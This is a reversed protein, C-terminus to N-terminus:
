SDNITNKIPKSFAIRALPHLQPQQHQYTQTPIGGQQDIYGLQQQPIYGQQPIQNSYNQQPGQYANLATFAPNGYGGEGYQMPSIRPIRAEAESLTPVTTKATDMLIAELMGRKSPDQTAAAALLSIAPDVSPRIPQGVPQIPQQPNIGVSVLVENLEGTKKMELLIEKLLSKLESKKFTTVKKNEM